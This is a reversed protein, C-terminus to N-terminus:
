NKGRERDREEWAKRSERMREDRAKDAERMREAYAKDNERMREDYRKDGERDREREAKEYERENASAERRERQPADRRVDASRGADLRMQESPIVDRMEAGKGKGNDAMAFQPLTGISLCLALGALRRNM